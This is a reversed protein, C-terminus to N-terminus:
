EFSSKEMSMPQTYPQRSMSRICNRTGVRFCLASNHKKRGGTDKLSYHVSYNSAILGFNTNFCYYIRNLSYTSRLNVWLLM